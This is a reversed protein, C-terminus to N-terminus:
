SKGGLKKKLFDIYGKRMVAREEIYKRIQERDMKKDEDTMPIIPGDYKITRDPEGFSLIARLTSIDSSNSYHSDTDKLISCKKFQGNIVQWNEKTNM